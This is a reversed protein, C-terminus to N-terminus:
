WTECNRLVKDATLRLENSVEGVYLFHKKRIGKDTMVETNWLLLFHKRDYMVVDMSHVTYTVRDGTATTAYLLPIEMDGRLDRLMETKLVAPLVFLLAFLLCTIGVCIGLVHVVSLATFYLVLMPLLLMTVTFVAFRFSTSAFRQYNQQLYRMM